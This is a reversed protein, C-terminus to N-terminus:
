VRPDATFATNTFNSKIQLVTIGARPDKYGHKNRKKLPSTGTDYEPM